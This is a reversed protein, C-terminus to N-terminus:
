VHVGHELIDAYSEILTQLDEQQQRTLNHFALAVDYATRGREEHEPDIRVVVAECQLLIHTAGDSSHPTIFSLLLKKSVPLYRNVTCSIGNMSLNVSDAQISQGSAAEQLSLTMPVRVVFRPSGRYESASPTKM